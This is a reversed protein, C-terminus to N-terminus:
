KACEAAGLKIFIAKSEKQTADSEAALKTAQKIDNKELAAILAEARAAQEEQLVIGRKVDAAENAPPKLKKVDAILKKDFPLLKKYMVIATAITTPTGAATVQDNFAACLANSKAAFQEKTLRKSSGGGCSSLVLVAGIVLLAVTGLRRKTM